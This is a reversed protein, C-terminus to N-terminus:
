QQSQGSPYGLAKILVDLMKLESDSIGTIKFGTCYQKSPEPERWMNEGSWMSCVRCRVTSKGEIETGLSLNVHYEQGVALPSESSLMMGELSLNELHGIFSGNQTNFVAIDRDFEFRTLKRKEIHNM